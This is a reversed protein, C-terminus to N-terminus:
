ILFLCLGSVACLGEWHLCFDSCWALSTRVLVTKWLLLVLKRIPFPPMLASCFQVLSDFCIVALCPNNGVPEGSLSVFVFLNGCPMKVFDFQGLLCCACFCGFRLGVCGFQIILPWQHLCTNLGLAVWIKLLLSALLVYEARHHVTGAVSDGEGHPSHSARAHIWCHLVPYQLVVQACFLVLYVIFMLDVNFVPRFFRSM